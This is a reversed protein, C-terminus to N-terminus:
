YRETLYEFYRRIHHMFHMTAVPGVITPNILYGIAGCLAYIEARLWIAENM